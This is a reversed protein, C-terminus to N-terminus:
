IRPAQQLWQGHAPLMEKLAPVFRQIRLDEVSALEMADKVAYQKRVDAESRPASGSSIRSGRVRQAFEEESKTRYHNIVIEDTDSPRWESHVLTNRRVSLPRADCQFEHVGPETVRLPDVIMKTRTLVPAYEPAIIPNPIEARRRYSDIVLGDPRKTHGCPGFCHWPLLLGALDEYAQLADPLTTRRGPFVFEDADIFMMWRSSSGFAALAHAYAGRQTMGGLFSPWRMVTVDGKRSHRELLELTGDTSGNDYIYFHGVGVIRHFALWEDLYTAENKVIAAVTLYHAPKSRRPPLGLQFLSPSAMTPVQTPQQPLRGRDRRSITQATEAIKRFINM